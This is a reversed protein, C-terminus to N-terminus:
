KGENEKICKAGFQAIKKIMENNVKTFTKKASDEIPEIIQPYRIPDKVGTDPKATKPNFPM